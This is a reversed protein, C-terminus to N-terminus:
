NPTKLRGSEDYVRVTGNQPKKAPPTRRVAPKRRIPPKRAVTPKPADAHTDVTRGSEAILICILKQRM